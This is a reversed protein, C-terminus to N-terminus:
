VPPALPLMQVHASRSVLGLILEWKTSSLASQWTGTTTNYYGPGRTTLM